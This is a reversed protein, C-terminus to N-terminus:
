AKPGLWHRRLWTAPRTSHLPGVRYGDVAESMKPRGHFCVVRADPPLRPPLFLNLPRKPRCDYKFSAIWEDPFPEFDGAEAAAYSLYSQESGHHRLTEGMTDRVLKEYLYGHRAPDYRVVSSNGLGVRRSPTAWVRRMCVKTPAYTMFDDLPATIVVDLDLSLLPGSLDPVLGPKRMLTKLMPGRRDSALRAAELRTQFADPIIDIIEIESRVGTRNDTVFMFRLDGNLNRRVGAYLRNVYEPAFATGWGICIVNHEGM